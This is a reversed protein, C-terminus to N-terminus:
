RKYVRKKTDIHRNEHRFRWLNAVVGLFAAELMCM